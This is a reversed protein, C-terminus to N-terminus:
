CGVAKRLETLANDIRDLARRTSAVPNTYGDTLTLVAARVTGAARVADAILRLEDLGVWERGGLIYGREEAPWDIRGGLATEVQELKRQLDAVDPQYGLRRAVEADIRPKNSAEIEEWVKQRGATIAQARLTDQRAIVSRVALWSPHHGQKTESKVRIDMRTKSRGPAMLGWGAPLEGDRVIQPDNVVLYWQHCEDAWGDSKGPSSLEKVWDARSVKLEHGVLIRGSTSTFGIYIADCTGGTGRSGGNWGCEPIFVGGPLNEGPKIYHRQLRVLLERTTDAM